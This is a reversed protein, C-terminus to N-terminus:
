FSDISGPIVIRVHIVVVAGDIGCLYTGVSVAWVM